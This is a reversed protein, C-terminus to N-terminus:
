ALFSYLRWILNRIVNLALMAFVPSLDLPLGTRQMIWMSLGRFPAMIPAIFQGLIDMVRGRPIFWSLICYLIIAYSLIKLCIDIAYFVSYLV